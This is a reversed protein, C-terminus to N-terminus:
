RQNLVRVRQGGDLARRFQPPFFFQEHFVDPVRSVNGDGSLFTLLFTLRQLSLSYHLYIVVM